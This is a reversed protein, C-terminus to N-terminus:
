SWKQLLGPPWASWFTWRQSLVESVPQEISTIAHPDRGVQVAMPSGAIVALQVVGAAVVVFGAMFRTAFRANSASTAVLDEITGVPAVPIAPDAAGVARQVETLLASTPPEFSHRIADHRIGSGDAICDCDDSQGGRKDRFASRGSLFGLDPPIPASHTM